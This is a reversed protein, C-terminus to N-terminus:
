RDVDKLCLQGLAKESLLKNELWTQYDELGSVAWQDTIILM